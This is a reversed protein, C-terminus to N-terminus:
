DSALALAVASALRQPAPIPAPPTDITHWSLLAAQWRWSDSWVKPNHSNWYDVFRYLEKLSIGNPLNRRAYDALTAITPPMM